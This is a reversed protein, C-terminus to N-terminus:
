PYDLHHNIGKAPEILPNLGHFGYISMNSDFNHNPVMQCDAALLPVIPVGRGILPM